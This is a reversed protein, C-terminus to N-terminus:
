TGSVTAAGPLMDSYLAARREGTGGFHSGSPFPFSVIRATDTATLPLAFRPATTGTSSASSTTAQPPDDAVGVAGGPAVPMPRGAAVAAGVPRFTSLTSVM